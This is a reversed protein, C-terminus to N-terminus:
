NEVPLDANKETFEVSLQTNSNKWNVRMMCSGGTHEFLIASNEAPSVLRRVSMPVRSEGGTSKKLLLTAYDPTAVITYDGAPIVEKVTILSEDTVFMIDDFVTQWIDGYPPPYGKRVKVHRTSYDVTITKGDSFKCQAQMKPSSPGEQPVPYPFMKSADQSTAQGVIFLTVALVKVGSM